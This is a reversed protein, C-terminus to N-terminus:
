ATESCGIAAALFLKTRGLLPEYDESAPAHGPFELRVLEARKGAAAWRATLRESHAFPVVPDHISHFALLATGAPPDYELPSLDRALEKKGPGDGIWRRASDRVNPGLAMGVMDTIGWFSVLAKADCRPGGIRGTPAMAAVLALHAGASFGVLAAPHAGYTIDRTKRIAEAAGYRVDEAAAPAPAEDLLRYELNAVVYGQALFEPIFSLTDRRSGERWGGGHILIVLGCAKTATPKYLDFKQAEHSGYRLNAADPTLPGTGCGAVSLGALCMLADRRRLM